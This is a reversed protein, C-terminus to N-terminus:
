DCWARRWNSAADSWRGVHSTRTAPIGLYENSVPLIWRKAGRCCRCHKNRSRHWQKFSRQSQPAYTLLTFWLDGGNPMKDLHPLRHGGIRLVGVSRVLYQTREHLCSRGPPANTTHNHLEISREVKVKAVM